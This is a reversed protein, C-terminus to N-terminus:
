ALFDSWHRLSRLNHKILSDSGITGQNRALLQLGRAAVEMADDPNAKWSEPAWYIVPSCVVPVGKSISDATVMNFSETYSVQINLDMSGILEVFEDWHVWHHRVLTVNPIAEIMEDIASLTLSKFGAGGTSMHLEMPVNLSAQIAVAAAAATMFNKEPRIAGLAGIKLLAGHWRKSRIRKVPYLNPLLICYENYAARFWNTFSSNNGGVALNKHTRALEAYKRFLEVGNPDAQLFGVNSHSLVAFQIESFHSILSKMDHLSLWPASIVVHTLPDHSANYKDIANVVDVNNRVAFAHATIGHARLYAATTYGAVNLGVCSSRVWHAFDKFFLALSVNSEFQPNQPHKKPKMDEQGIELDLSLTLGHFVEL